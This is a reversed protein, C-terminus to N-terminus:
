KFTDKVNLCGSQSKECILLVASPSSMSSEASTLLKAAMESAGGTIKKLGQSKLMRKVVPVAITAPNGSPMETMGNSLMKVVGTFKKFIDSDGDLKDLIWSVSKNNVNVIDLINPVKPRNSVFFINFIYIVCSIGTM